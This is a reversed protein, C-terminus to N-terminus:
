VNYIDAKYKMLNETRKFWEITEAVGQKLSYRPMWSTLKRIKENSGLLREVESKAPRLRTNDIMIKADPNIQNIIEQAVEGMSIEKQSCINIEEGVVNDAQAISLFGNVTDKVFNFDRTPSLSGLKIERM